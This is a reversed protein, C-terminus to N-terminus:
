PFRVSGDEFSSLSESPTGADLLPFINSGSYHTFCLDQVRQISQMFHVINKILLQIQNGAM